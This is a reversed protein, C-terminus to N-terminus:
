REAGSEPLPKHFEPAGVAFVGRGKSKTERIELYPALLRDRAMRFSRSGRCSCRRAPLDSRERRRKMEKCSQKTKLDVVDRLLRKPTCLDFTPVTRSVLGDPHIQATQGRCSVCVGVCESVWGCGGVLVGVGVGVCGCMGVCVWVWGCVGCGRMCGCGCGCGCALVVWGGVGVCACVCVCVCLYIYIYVSM